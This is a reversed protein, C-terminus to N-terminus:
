WHRVKDPCNGFRRFFYDLVGQRFAAVNGGRTTLFPRVWGWRSDRLGTVNRASWVYHRLVKRRQAKTSHKEAFLLRNRAFFYTQLSSARGGITASGIHRIVAERVMLLPFGMRRARMCWDTEDFNLFFREDFLGVELFHERHAFVGAGSIYATPMIPEYTIAALQEDNAWTPIGTVEDDVALLFDHSSSGGKHIPGLIPRRDAMSRWTTELIALTDTEVEADNNLLFIFAHEAELAVKIGFNNGGAWGLNANTPLVTVRPDDFQLHDLSGDTSGNDVVYLHWNDSSAETLSRYCALTHKWGNWNVTIVAISSRTETL